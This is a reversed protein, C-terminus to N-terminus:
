NKEGGRMDNLSKAPCRNSLYIVYDVAKAWFEIPMKKTKLMNIAM